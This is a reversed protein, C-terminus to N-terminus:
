WDPHTNPPAEHPETLIRRCVIYAAKSGGGTLIELGTPGGVAAGAKALETTVCLVCHNFDGGSHPRDTSYADQWAQAVFFALAEITQGINAAM